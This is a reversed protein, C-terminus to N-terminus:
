LHGKERIDQAIQSLKRLRHNVGSKGVPSSLKEGLEKLTADPEELRAYAIDRLNESLRELGVTNKIYEIHKTDLKIIESEDIFRKIEDKLVDLERNLVDEIIGVEEITLEVNIKKEM